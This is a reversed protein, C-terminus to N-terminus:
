CANNEKGSRAWHINSAEVHLRQQASCLLFEQRSSPGEYEALCPFEIGFCTM